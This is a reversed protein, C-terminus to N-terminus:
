GHFCSECKVDPSDKCYTGTQVLHSFELLLSSGSACFFRHNCEKFVTALLLSTM